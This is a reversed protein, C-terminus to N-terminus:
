TRYAVVGEKTKSALARKVIQATRTNDQTSESLVANLNDWAENTNLTAFVQGNVLGKVLDELSIGYANQFTPGESQGHDSLVIMHYPRAAYQM